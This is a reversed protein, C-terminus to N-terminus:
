DHGKIKQALVNGIIHSVAMQADQVHGTTYGPVVLCLDCFTRMAGGDYGSFGITTAGMEKAYHYAKMMNQSWVGGKDGGSGGHVSYGVLLDGRKIWGKLQDSYVNEWGNDNVLATMLDINDVLPITKLREKGESYTGKGWDNAFHLSHSASGGNGMIFVNKNERWARYFENIIKEIMEQDLKLAIKSAEKLYDNIYDGISVRFFDEKPEEKVPPLKELKVRPM